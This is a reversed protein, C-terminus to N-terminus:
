LGREAVLSAVVTLLELVAVFIWHPWFYTHTHVRAQETMYLEKHGWPGICFYFNFYIHIYLQIVRSYLLFSCFM